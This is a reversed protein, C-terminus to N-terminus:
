LSKTFEFIWNKNRFSKKEAELWISGAALWGVRGKPGSPGVPRGRGGEGAGGEEWAMSHVQGTLGTM